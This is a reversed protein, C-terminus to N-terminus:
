DRNADKQAVKKAGRDLGRPVSQVVIERRDNPEGNYDEDDLSVHFLSFLKVLRHALLAILEASIGETGCGVCRGSNPRRSLRV